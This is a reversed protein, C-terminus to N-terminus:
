GSSQRLCRNPSVSVDCGDEHPPEIDSNMLNQRKRIIMKHHISDYLILYQPHTSDENVRMDSSLITSLQGIMSWDDKM